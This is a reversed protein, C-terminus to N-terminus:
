LFREFIERKRALCMCDPRYMYDYLRLSSKHALILRKRGGQETVSGKISQSRLIPEIWSAALPGSFQCRLYDKKWPKGGSLSKSHRITVCGDGDFYGLAFAPVLDSPIRPPGRDDKYHAFGLDFLRHALHGTSGIRIRYLTFRPPPRNVTGIKHSSNSISALTEPVIRDKSTIQLEHSDRGLPMLSGDSWLLGLMWAKEDDLVDFATEDIPIRAVL